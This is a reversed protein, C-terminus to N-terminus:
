IDDIRFVSLVFSSESIMMNLNMVYTISIIGLKQPTNPTEKKRKDSSFLNVCLTNISTEGKRITTM